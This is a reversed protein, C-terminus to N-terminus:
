VFRGGFTAGQLKRIVARLLQSVPYGQTPHFESGVDVPTSMTSIRFTLNSTGLLSTTQLVQEQHDIYLVTSLLEAAQQISM